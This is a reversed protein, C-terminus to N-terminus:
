NFDVKHQINEDCLFSKREGERHPITKYRETTTGHKKMWKACEDVLFSHIKM